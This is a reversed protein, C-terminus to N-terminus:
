RISARKHRLDTLEAKLDTVVKEASAKSTKASELSKEMRTMGSEYVRVRARMTDIEGKLEVVDTESDKVMAATVMAVGVLAGGAWVLLVAGLQSGVPAGGEGARKLLQLANVLGAIFAVVGMVVAFGVVWTLISM